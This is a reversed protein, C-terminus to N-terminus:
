SVASSAPPISYTLNARAVLLGSGESLIRTDVVVLSRGLKLITAECLLDRNAAPKRLFDIGANTTVTLARPGIRSLIVCYAAVDALMFIAPGGVTGGPRLHRDSALLRMTLRDIDLGDIRVDGAVQQFERALFVQLAEIDM